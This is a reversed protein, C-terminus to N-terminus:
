IEGRIISVKSTKPYSEKGNQEAVLKDLERQYEDAIEEAHGISMIVHNEKIMSSEYVSIVEVACSKGSYGTVPEYEFLILFDGRKYHRDNYRIEWFKNGQIIEKFWNRNCKLKHDM